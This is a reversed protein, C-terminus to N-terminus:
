KTNRKSASKSGKVRYEWSWWSEIYSYHKGKREIIQLWACIDKGGEVTVTRPFIPFFDHWKSLRAIKAEWNEGCSFIM